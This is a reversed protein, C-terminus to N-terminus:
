IQYNHNRITELFSITTIHANNGLHGQYEPVITRNGIVFTLKPPMDLLPLFSPDTAHGPFPVTKFPNCHGKVFKLM